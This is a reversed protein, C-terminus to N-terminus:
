PAPNEAVPQKLHALKEHLGEVALKSIVEDATMGLKNAAMSFLALEMESVPVSFFADSKEKDIDDTRDLELRHTIEDLRDSAFSAASQIADLLGGELRNTWWDPVGVDSCSLYSMEKLVTACASIGWQTKELTDLDSKLIAKNM